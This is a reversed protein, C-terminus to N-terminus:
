IVNHVIMVGKAKPFQVRMIMPTNEIQRKQDIYSRRLIQRPVGLSFTM